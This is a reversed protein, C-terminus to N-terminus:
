GSPVKPGTVVSCVTPELRHRSVRSRYGTRDRPWCKTALCRDARRIGRSSSTPVMQILSQAFTYSSTSSPPNSCDPRPRMCPIATMSSKRSYLCMVMVVPTNAGDLRVLQPPVYINFFFKVSGVTLAARGSM